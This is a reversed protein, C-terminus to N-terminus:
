LLQKTLDPHLPPAEGDCCIILRKYGPSQHQPQIRTLSRNPPYKEADDDSRSDRSEKDYREHDRQEYRTRSSSYRSM